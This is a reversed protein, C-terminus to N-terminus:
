GLYETWAPKVTGEPDFMFFCFDVAYILRAVPLTFRINWGFRSIDTCYVAAFFAVLLAVEFLFVLGRASSASMLHGRLSEWIFLPVIECSSILTSFSYLLILLFRLFIMAPQDDRMPTRTRANDSQASDALELDKGALAVLLEVVLFSALYMAAHAQIMPIGRMAFVKVYQPLAGFAFLVLRLVSNQRIKALKDNQPDDSKYLRENLVERAARRPSRGASMSDIFSLTLDVAHVGCLWASSRLEFSERASYDKLFFHCIVGCPQTM